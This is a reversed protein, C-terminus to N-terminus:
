RYLASRCLPGQVTRYQVSPVSIPYNINYNEAQLYLPRRLDIRRRRAFLYVRKSAMKLKIRNYNLSDTDFYSFRDNGVERVSRSGEKISTRGGLSGCRYRRNGCSKSLRERGREIEALKM